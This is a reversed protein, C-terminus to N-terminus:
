DNHLITAPSEASSEQVSAAITDQAGDVGYGRRSKVRAPKGARSQDQKPQLARAPVSGVPRPVANQVPATVSSPTEDALSAAPTTFRRLSVSAMVFLMVSFWLSVAALLRLYRIKEKSRINQSAM